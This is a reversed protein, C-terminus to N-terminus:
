FQILALCGHIKVSSKKICLNSNNENIKLEAGVTQFFLKLKNDAVVQRVYKLGNGRSEPSRGSIVETFGTKLADEDSNLGPKVKRLTTLMGQGRDALVIKRKKLDYMFFIGMVDPWNGFNHAFSNDGIEGAVSVILFYINNVDKIKSLEDQLRALQAQFVASDRCYFDPQLEAPQESLVWNKAIKFIDKLNNKSFEGIDEKKYYRYNNRGRVPTLRGSKDWRRLTQRTVGLIEATKQISILNNDM